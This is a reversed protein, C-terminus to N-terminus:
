NRDLNSHLASTYYFFKMIGYQSQNLIATSEILYCASSTEWLLTVCAVVGEQSLRLVRQHCSYIICEENHFKMIKTQAGSCNIKCSDHM